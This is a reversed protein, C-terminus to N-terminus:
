DADGDTDCDDASTCSADGDTDCDSASTSSDAESATDLFSEMDGRVREGVKVDCVGSM